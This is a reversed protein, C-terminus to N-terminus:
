LSDVFNLQIFEALEHYGIKEYILAAKKYEGLEVCSEAIPRLMDAYKKMDVHELIDLVQKTKGQRLFQEAAQQLIAKRESDTFMSLNVRNIGKDLILRVITEPNM